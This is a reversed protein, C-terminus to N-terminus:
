GEGESLSEVVVEERATALLQEEDTHCSLCSDNSVVVTPSPMPSAVATPSPLLTASATATWTPQLTPSAELTATPQSTPTGTPLLTASPAQAVEEVAQHTPALPTSAAGCAVTLGAAILILGTVILIELLLQRRTPSM